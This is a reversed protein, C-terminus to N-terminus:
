HVAGALDVWTKCGAFAPTEVLVLPEAATVRVELIFLGPTRYHFRKRVVDDTLIHMPRLALATDLSDVFRVNTVEVVHTLRVTGNPPRDSEAEHLFHRFEDRLGAAQEHFYTPYHWFRSHDPRFVGGEDAIGGKRLIVTQVGAALARCVAAWEKFAVPPDPNV